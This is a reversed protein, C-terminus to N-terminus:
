IKRSMGNKELVEKAERPTYGQEILECFAEIGEEIGEERGDEWAEERAVEMATDIDYEFLMNSVEAANAKLFEKLIDNEICWYVAKIVAEELRRWLRREGPGETLFPRNSVSPTPAAPARPVAQPVEGQGEGNPAEEANAPAGDYFERVKAIFTAYEELVKVKGSIQPNHGKNINYVKVVLELEPKGVGDGKFADSLRLEVFDPYDEKGNYFVIFEPRPIRALKRSYLARKDIVKEYVRAIYELFRVPMNPNISSQHEMLVILSDGLMFSIDNKRGKFLTDSLTNVLVPTSEDYGTGEVANYLERLLTEDSFLRVFVSDKYKKNATM